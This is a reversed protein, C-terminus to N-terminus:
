SVGEGILRNLGFDSLLLRVTGDTASVLINSLKLSGHVVGMDHAYDLASAADALLKEIDDERLSKGKLSLYRNLNMTEGFSDVIPDMVLFHFGEHSSINHIKVINPHDLAAIESVKAEFRRLFGVNASVHPPLVKLAFPRKIFRHEALYVEGFPGRGLLKQLVYDGLVERDSGVLLNESSLIGEGLDHVM